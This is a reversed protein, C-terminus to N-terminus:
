PLVLNGRQGAVADVQFHRDCGVIVLDLHEVGRGVQRLDHCAVLLATEPGRDPEVTKQSLAYAVQGAAENEVVDARKEPVTVTEQKRVFALFRELGILLMQHSYKRGVALRAALGGLLRSLQSM